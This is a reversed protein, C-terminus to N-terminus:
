SRSQEEHIRVNNKEQAAILEDEQGEYEWKKIAPRPVEADCGWSGNEICARRWEHWHRSCFGRAFDGVRNCDPAPCPEKCKSM